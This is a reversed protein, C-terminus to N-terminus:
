AWLSCDPKNQSLGSSQSRSASRYLGTAPRMGAKKHQAKHCPETVSAQVQTTGPMTQPKKEQRISRILYGALLNQELDVARNFCKHCLKSLLNPHVNWKHWLANTRLFTRPTWTPSESICKVHILIHWAAKDEQSRGIWFQVWRNKTIETM